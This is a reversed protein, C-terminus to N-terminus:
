EGRGHFSSCGGGCRGLKRAHAGAACTLASPMAVRRRVIDAAEIAIDTGSGIAIGLDAQSCSVQALNSGASRLLPLLTTSGTGWWPWSTGKPRVALGESAGGQRSTVDTARATMPLARHFPHISRSARQQHWHEERCAHCVEMKKHQLWSVVGKAEAAVCENLTRRAQSEWEAITENAWDGARKGQGDKTWVAGVDHM